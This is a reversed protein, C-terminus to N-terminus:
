GSNDRFTYYKGGPLANIINGILIVWSDKPLARAENITIPHDNMVAQAQMRNNSTSGPGTFGDAFISVPFIILMLGYILNLTINKM